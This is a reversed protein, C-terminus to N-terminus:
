FAKTNLYEDKIPMVDIPHFKGKALLEILPVFGQKAGLQHAFRIDKVFITQPGEDLIVREDIHDGESYHFEKDTADYYVLEGDYSVEINGMLFEKGNYIGYHKKIAKALSQGGSVTEESVLAGLSVGIHSNPDSESTRSSNYRSHTGEYFFTM